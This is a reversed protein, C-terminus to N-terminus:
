SIVKRIAADLHGVFDDLQQDSIILPPALRIVDPRTANVIWRWALLTDAVQGAIERELEIGILLGRGRVQSIVPNELDRIAQRLREGADRSRALLGDHEIVDLVANGAAAAVPNGSFTSGHSGPTFFEGASGIGICAGIPFGNGLGKAVTILDPHIGEAVSVFWEGCRGIGTQVEDIWLLANHAATIERAKALYGAPPVVVGNEGQIPEIVVAATTSDVAEALCDVDGYPVFTVEGPLPAFPERYKATYTLALSGMTRGHFSGEMAIIKKRGTLRTIKFAAENAETGSNAFYVRAGPEPASATALEGLRKALTIQPESAFLNSIHGLTRMQRSVAETIAPHAHGLGGVAIGSFMDTYHHGEEDWLDAGSGRSFVVKPKGFNHMLTQDYRTLWESQSDNTM